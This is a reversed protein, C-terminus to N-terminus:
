DDSGEEDAAPKAPEIHGQKLLWPTSAGPLDTVVEGPEARHPKGGAEWSLGKLVRYARPNRSGM